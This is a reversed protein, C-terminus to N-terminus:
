LIEMSCSEDNAIKSNLQISMNQDMIPIAFSFKSGRNEGDSEVWMAGMHLSIFQKCLSLGLGTGQFRRSISSEVQEFPSFIRSLDAKHIGIGTDSVSIRIYNSSTANDSLQEINPLIQHEEISSDDNIHCAIKGFSVVKASLEIKGNDPTFKIANSLLNYLIQKIKREDAIISDPIDEIKTSLEIQHKIAKEKIMVFANELITQISISSVNLDMKGAEVKSLDLIDNILSLLHHSSELVDNLYEEQEANLEGLNKDVVLETFGIIHNLPTRLEHSMNALFESKSRNAEEAMEKKIREKAATTEILEKINKRLEKQMFLFSDALRGVEDKYKLPLIEISSFPSKENITFDLSPLEKAYGALLNIPRSIRSVVIYAAFIGSVFFLAIITMQRRVLTEAPEKIENVPVVVGIYWNFAKFHRIHAEMEFNKYSSIFHVLPVSNKSAEILVALLSKNKLHPEGSDFDAQYKKPPPILVKEDGSFLFAYGSKGIQIKTLNSALNDIIKEMKKKSEAEIHDFDIAAGLTWEWQPLPTFYGMKKSAAIEDAVQWRFVAGGGSKDLEDYRMVRYILRGKMDRLNAISIGIFDANNHHVIVGNQDFIFLEGKEFDVTSLWKIAKRQAAEASMSGSIALNIYENFVSSCIISAHKLDNQLGRLIDLKESILQSYRGEINLEVLRLVNQASAEETELVTRGVDRNTFYMQVAATLAMIIGFLILIKTKLSRFM